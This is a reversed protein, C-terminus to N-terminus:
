EFDSHFFDLLHDIVEVTKLTSVFKVSFIIKYKIKTIEQPYKTNIGSLSIFLNESKNM